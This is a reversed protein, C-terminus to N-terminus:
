KDNFIDMVHKDIVLLAAPDSGARKLKQVVHKLGDVSDHQEEIKKYLFKCTDPDDEDESQQYLENLYEWYQEELALAKQFYDLPQTSFPIAPMEISSFTPREGRESLFHDFDRAHDLEEKEAKHFFKHFGYWSELRLDARMQKYILAAAMERNMQVQLSHALATPLQSAM